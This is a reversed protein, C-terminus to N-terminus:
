GGRVPVCRLMEMFSQLRYLTRTSDNGESDTDLNLFPLEAWDKIRQAEAHWNDCWVYHRLVIGRVGSGIICQRLWQFFESNPRRFPDPISGFYADALTGLPDDRLRRRDFPAPLTREGTETGDLAVYGGAQEILDFIGFSSPPLPGGILAVPVGARSDAPRSEGGVFLRAGSGNFEYILESYRRPSVFGRSDRLAARAADREVMADALRDQTPHSGGVRELFTGLREIEGVYLKHTGPTQWTHPVDLVFVPLDCDRAILDAVRRMQDCVTTVVVGAAGDTQAIEDVFAHAYPCLGPRLGVSRGKCSPAIRVPALGHAEIWEAPVFPCSYAITASM